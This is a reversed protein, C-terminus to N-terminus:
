VQLLPDGEAKLGRVEARRQISEEIRKSRAILRENKKRIHRDKIEAVTLDSGDTDMREDAQGM